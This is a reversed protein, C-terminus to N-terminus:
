WKPPQAQCSKMSTYPLNETRYVNSLSSFKRDCLLYLKKKLVLFHMKKRQKTSCAQSKRNLFVTYPVRVATLTPCSIRAVLLSRQGRLSRNLRGMSPLVDQSWHHKISSKVVPFPTVKPASKRMAVTIPSLYYNRAAQQASISSSRLAGELYLLLTTSTNLHARDGPKQM